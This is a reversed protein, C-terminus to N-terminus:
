MLFRYFYKNIYINAENPSIGLTESLGWASMGYVIGFNIAKASRRMAPTVADKSVEYIQAATSTHFGVWFM